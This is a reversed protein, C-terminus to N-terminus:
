AKTKLRIQGLASSRIGLRKYVLLAMLLNRVIMSISTATAAGEVGWRPIFAANLAVNLVVGIGVGIAADREHGTMILLLSVTGAAANVVCGAALIALTLRGQIFEPGFLSLFWNSFLILGLAVSLSVPLLAQASRTVVRQLQQIKGAAHLGAITPALAVNAATQILLILQAGRNAVTYIGVAATGTLAGLMLTDIRHNFVNMGSILMMPLASRAWEGVQYAPSVDRAPQPVMRRLLYTGIFLAVVAAMAYLGLAWQPNLGTGLILYACGLLAMFSLPRVFFDPLLAVVVRNLGQLAAQRLDLLTLLPLMLMGLWMAKSMQFDLRETLIWIVGAALLALGLSIQSATRNAWNLLGRLLHWESRTRYVAIERILLRDLGFLAPVVLLTVWAMVYSFTGYGAVGLLRALLVSTIFSFGTSAIRLGFTGTAAKLLRDRLPRAEEGAFFRKTLQSIASSYTRLVFGMMM